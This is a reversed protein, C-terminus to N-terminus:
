YEPWVEIANHVDGEGTSIADMIAQYPNTKAGDDNVAALVSLKDLASAGLRWPYSGFVSTMREIFHSPAAVDIHLESRIYRYYISASM